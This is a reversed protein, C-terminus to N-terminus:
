IFHKVTFINFITIKDHLHMQKLIHSLYVLYYIQRILKYCIWAKNELNWTDDFFTCTCNLKFLKHKQNNATWIELIMAKTQWEKELNYPHGEVHVGKQCAQCAYWLRALLIRTLRALTRTHPIGAKTALVIASRYPVDQAHDWHMWQQLQGKTLLDPRLATMEQSVTLIMHSSSWLNM